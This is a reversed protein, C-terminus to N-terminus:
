AREMAGCINCNGIRIGLISSYADNLTSVRFLTRSSWVLAMSGLGRQNGSVASVIAM